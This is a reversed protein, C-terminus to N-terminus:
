IRLVQLSEGNKSVCVNNRTDLEQTESIAGLKFLGEGTVFCSLGLLLLGRWGRGIGWAGIPGLMRERGIGKSERQFVKCM